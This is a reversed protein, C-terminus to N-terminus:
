CDKNLQKCVPQARGVYALFQQGCTRESFVPFSCLQAQDQTM